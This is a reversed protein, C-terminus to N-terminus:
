PAAVEEVHVRRGGARVEELLATRASEYTLGSGYAVRQDDANWARLFYGKGPPGCWADGDWGEPLVPGQTMPDPLFDRDPSKLGLLHRHMQARRDADPDVAHPGAPRGGAPYLRLEWRGRKLSDALLCRLEGTSVARLGSGAGTSPGPIMEGEIRFPVSRTEGDVVIEALSHPLYGAAGEVEGCFVTRGDRFRFLDTLQMRTHPEDRM